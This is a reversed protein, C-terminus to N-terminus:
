GNQIKFYSKLGKQKVTHGALIEAPKRKKSVQSKQQTSASPERLTNKPVNTETPIKAEALRNFKRNMEDCAEGISSSDTHDLSAPIINAILQESEILQNNENESIFVEDTDLFISKQSLAHTLQSGMTHEKDFKEVLESDISQDLHTESVNNVDVSLNENTFLTSLHPPSTEKSGCLNNVDLNDKISKNSVENSSEIHGERCDVDREWTNNKSKLSQCNQNEKSVVEKQNPSMSKLSRGGFLATLKTQGTDEKFRKMRRSSLAPIPHVPLSPQEKLTLVIAAHDSWSKPVMKVIEVDIVQDLFGRSCAAYDIRLGENHIRAEKRANWVSFVDRANPHFFRFLDVYDKFFEDIWSLEESSYIDHINWDRFVDIDRHAVNFDGLIVIEKGSNLLEDCRNKLAKLFCLKFNLRSHIGPHVGTNPVYVNILVFSGHDTEMIRGEKCLDGDLDGDLDGLFDAKADLPSCNETVYTVVGSYGKKVSCFAWFSEFKPVCAMWKELKEEQIKAEQFCIIEARLCNCFYNSVSDYRYAADKLTNYLGNVNWSIIRM